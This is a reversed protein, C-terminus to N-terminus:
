TIGQAAKNNLKKQFKRGHDPCGTELRDLVVFTHVPHDPAPSEKRPDREPQFRALRRAIDQTM